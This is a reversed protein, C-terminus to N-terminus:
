WGIRKREKEPWHARVLAGLKKEPVLENGGADDPSAWMVTLGATGLADSIDAALKHLEWGEWNPDAPLVERGLENFASALLDLHHVGVIILGNELKSITSTPLHMAEALDAQSADLSGRAVAIIRGYLRGLLVVSEAEFKADKAPVFQPGRRRPATKNTSM